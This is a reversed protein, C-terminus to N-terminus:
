RLEAVSNCIITVNSASHGRKSVICIRKAETDYYARLQPNSTFIFQPLM